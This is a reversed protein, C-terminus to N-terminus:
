SWAGRFWAHDTSYLPLNCKMFKIKFVCSFMFVMFKVKWMLSIMIQVM